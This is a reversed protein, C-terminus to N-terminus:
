SGKHYQITSKGVGYIKALQRISRKDAKIESIQELTLKIPTKIGKNWSIHGKKFGSETNIGPKFETEPSKHKGKGNESMLLKSEKSHKFGKMTGPARNFGINPNRTDYEAILQRELTRAEEKSEFVAIIELCFDGVERIADYLPGSKGTKADYKHHCKREALTKGGCEGFYIKGNIAIKYVFFSKQKVEVLKYIKGAIKINEM